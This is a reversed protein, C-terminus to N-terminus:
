RIGTSASSSCGLLPAHFVVELGSHDSLGSERWAHVYRCEVPNLTASAFVHDFRSDRFKGLRKLRWSFEAVGYGHLRRFVDALDYPALGTLISREAADWREGPGGRIRRRIQAAGSGSM